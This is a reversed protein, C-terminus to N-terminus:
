RVVIECKQDLNNHRDKLERGIAIMIERDRNLDFQPAKSFDYFWVPGKRRDEPEDKFRPFVHAHLAPDANGLIEYNARVANTVALAADGILAMDRLFLDRATISLDNLTPVVPDPLLLCYGKLCQHDGIVAWGSPVKCIVKPNDGRRAQEVREHILTKVVVM